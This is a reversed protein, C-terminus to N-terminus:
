PDLDVSAMAKGGIDDAVEEEAFRDPADDPAGLHDHGLAQRLQPVGMGFRLEDTRGVRQETRDVHVVRWVSRQDHDVHVGADDLVGLEDPGIGVQAALDLLVPEILLVIEPPQPSNRVIRQVRIATLGPHVALAGGLEDPM